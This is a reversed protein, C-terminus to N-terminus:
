RLNRSNEASIVLMEDYGKEPYIMPIIMLLKHPNDSRDSSIM